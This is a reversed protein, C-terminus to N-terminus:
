MDYRVASSKWKEPIILHTVYMCLSHIIRHSISFPRNPAIKFTPNKGVINEWWMNREHCKKNSNLMTVQAMTMFGYTSALMECFDLIGIFYKMFIALYPVLNRLLFRLTIGMLIEELIRWHSITQINKLVRESVIIKMISPTIRNSRSRSNLAEKVNRVM